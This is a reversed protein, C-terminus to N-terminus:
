QMMGIMNVIGELQQAGEKEVGDAIKANRINEMIQTDTFSPCLCSVRVGVRDLPYTVQLSLDCDSYFCKIINFPCVVLTICM